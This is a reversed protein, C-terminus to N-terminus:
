EQFPAPENEQLGHALDHNHAKLLTAYDFVAAPGTILVTTQKNIQELNCIHKTTKVFAAYLKSARPM